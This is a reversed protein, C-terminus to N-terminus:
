RRDSMFKSFFNRFKSPESKALEEPTPSETIMSPETVSDSEAATPLGMEMRDGEAGTVSAVLGSKETLESISPINEVDEGTIETETAETPSEPESAFELPTGNEPEALANEDAIGVVGVAESSETVPEAPSGVEGIPEVPEIAAVPEGKKFKGLFRALWGANSPTTGSEAGKTETNELIADQTVGETPETTPDVDEPPIELVESESEMEDSSEATVAMTADHTETVVQETVTAVEESPEGEATEKEATEETVAEVGGDTIM